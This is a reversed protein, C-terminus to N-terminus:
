GLRFVRRANERLFLSITEDDLALSDLGELCVEPPWAPHNSGFMVKSRGHSKLFTVLEAPYRTVKYASTEIYVNDYKTALSVMEGTWPYGIHGGVITLEPFDLAVHDLYPIPRGPESPRLPGAHGVQTCFPIGLDVCALYLPYYRRDDPPLGWLWPVVRLAVFGLDEVCRRLTHVAQVPRSLDVSAVGRFRDPGRAVAAAVEENSILVGEPGVWASLLAVEVGARDMAALTSELPPDEDPIELRGWRRVTEFIESRMFPLNPHQAWVDVVASM